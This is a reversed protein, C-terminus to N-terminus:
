DSAIKGVKSELPKRKASELVPVREIAAILCELDPEMAVTIVVIEGNAENRKVMPTFEPMDEEKRIGLQISINHAIAQRMGLNSLTARANDDKPVLKAAIGKELIIKRAEKLGVNTIAVEDVYLISGNFWIKAPKVVAIDKILQGDMFKKLVLMVSLGTFIGILFSGTLHITLVTGLSTLISVYNRAEFVKAIDEIYASGRPVLETEDIRRISEREMNRVERFQQVALALFTVATYERDILAPIAVAGLAAAVMGITLHTIYGQPYSPYQRYDVKLLYLRALTGMFIGASIALTYKVM